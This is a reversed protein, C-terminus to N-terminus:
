KEASVNWVGFLEEVKAFRFKFIDELQGRIFLAVAFDGL